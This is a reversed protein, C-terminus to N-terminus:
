ASVPRLEASAKSSMMLSMRSKEFISAPFSSKSIVPKSRGVRTSLTASISAGLAAAFSISRLALMEGPAGARTKPSGPRM